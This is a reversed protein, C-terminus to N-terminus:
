PKSVADERINSQVGVGAKSQGLFELLQQFRFLM